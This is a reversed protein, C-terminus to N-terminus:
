LDVCLVVLGVLRGGCVRASSALSGDIPDHGVDVLGHDVLTLGQGDEVQRLCEVCAEHFMVMQKLRIEEVLCLCLVADLPPRVRDHLLWAAAYDQRILSFFQLAPLELSLLKSVLLGQNGLVLEFDLQLLLLM